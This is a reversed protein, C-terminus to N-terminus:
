RDSDLGPSCEFLSLTKLPNFSLPFVLYLCTNKFKFFYYESYKETM